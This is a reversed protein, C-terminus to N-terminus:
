VLEGDADVEVLLGGRLAYWTDAKVETGDVIVARVGLLHGDNDYEAVVLGSGVAAKAYGYWGLAASICDKGTTAAASYNGTTAAASGDGTTAAASRYGTTGAASRDGTTAAASGNGTTAAASRYGTTAAASYNGTTAAASGDGTTAAASRYGTTAAASRYGTTAAASGDGTTAAASRNGTTAAASRDGTTAAASYNGTTAAASGDGTTAAASRYGTTAAAKDSKCDIKSWVADFQARILGPLSLKAHVTITRSVVKSDDGGGTADDGLEVEAYASSAPPYYSLADLPMTVAHFGRSCLEAVEETYTEGEVYQFGRCTLDKTFGKYAKM